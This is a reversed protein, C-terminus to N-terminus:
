PADSGGGVSKQWNSLSVVDSYDISEINVSDYYKFDSIESEEADETTEGSAVAEEYDNVIDYYMKFAKLLQLKDADDKNALCNDLISRCETSGSSVTEISKDVYVKGGAVITGKFSKLGYGLTVDGKAVIIGTIDTIYNGDEDKLTQGDVFVDGESIWVHGGAADFEVDDSGVRNMLMYYNIPTVAAEGYASVVDKIFTEEAIDVVKASTNLTWKRLLYQRELDDNLLTLSTADETAYRHSLLKDIVTSANTDTVFNLSSGVKTTIAGSSYIDADGYKINDVHSENASIDTMVLILSSKLENADVDNEAPNMASGYAAVFAKEYKDVSSYTTDGSATLIEYATEFDIYNVVTAGITQHICPINDYFVDLPFFVQLFDVAKEDLRAFNVALVNKENIETEVPSGIESIEYMLQNNKVSISEATKYDRIFETNDGNEYVPNYTYTDSIVGSTKDNTHNVVKSLEIYARGALYLTNANALNISANEGNVIIASSNYHDRLFVNTSDDKATVMFNDTDVAPGFVRNDKQTSDGYGYYSGNITFDSYFSNIETDDRVYLDANFYSVSGKKTGSNSEGGLVIEDTWVEAKETKGSYVTVDSQNMISLSGPIVLQDAMINVNANDIYLGSFMSKEKEGDYDANASKSTTKVFSYWIDQATEGSGYTMSLVNGVTSDSKWGNTVKLGFSGDTYTMGENYEHNYFDSAGYINGNISLIENVDYTQTEYHDDDAFKAIEVGADGILAYDFIAPYDSVTKNFNVNFEPKVIEIDASVTQTYTGEGAQNSYLQTRTLTVDKIIIKELNNNDDKISVISLKSDDLEVTKNSIYSKLAKALEEENGFYTSSSLYEMFKSKFLFNASDDTLASYTDKNVDYYVMNTLTFTYAKQMEEITNLGVGAYIEQMAQEVNYFNNKANVDQLKQRYGYLAASLLAGFIIGIFALAVVVMVISSGSNNLKKFKKKIKNILKM